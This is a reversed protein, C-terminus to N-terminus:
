AEKRRSLLLLVVGGGALVLGTIPSWYIPHKEQKNVELPGVDVVKEKTVITFGTIVTMLLGIVLLVIGISKM